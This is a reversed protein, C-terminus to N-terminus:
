QHVEKHKRRERWWDHLWAGWLATALGLSALLGLGVLVLITDRM